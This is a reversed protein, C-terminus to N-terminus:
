LEVSWLLYAGAAIMLDLAAPESWFEVIYANPDTPPAPQATSDRVRWVTASGILVDEVAPYITTSGDSETKEKWHTLLEGHIM